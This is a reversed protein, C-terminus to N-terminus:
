VGGSSYFSTAGAAGDRSFSVHMHDAHPNEGTYPRWAQSGAPGRYASWIHRDYILYMVGARRLRAHPRGFSDPEMLWALMQEAAQRSPIAWDWARGEKHESVGGVLCDRVIGADAGGFRALVQNRFMVTGPKPTPDCTSQLDRSAYPELPLDDVRRPNQGPQPLQRPQQLDAEQQEQLWWWVGAGAM